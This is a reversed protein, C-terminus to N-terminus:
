LTFHFGDVIMGPIASLALSRQDYTCTDVIMEKFSTLDVLGSGFFHYLTEDFRMDKIPAIKQGDEVWFCAYRTMGTVRGGQVDSWNLYHLHDIYLGTGLTKLINGENLSGEGLTATSLGEGERAANSTVDYEKATRDSILWNKLKGGEILSLHSPACEGQNNFRPLLNHSFDQSLNIKPSLIKTGDGLDKLASHGKKYASYSLAGYSLVGVLAEVAHPSFYVRYAGPEIVKPQKKLLALDIDAEKLQHDFMDMDLISGALLKKVAKQEPTYLSYDLFFQDASFWHSTGVSSAYGRMIPGSCWIGAADYGELKQFIEQLPYDIGQATDSITSEHHKLPSYHPDTPLNGMIEKLMDIQQSANKLNDEHDLLLPMQFRAEKGDVQYSLVVDAQKVATSQRIKGQTFRIFTSDEGHLSLSMAEAQNLKEFLDDSLKQFAHRIDQTFSLDTTHLLKFSSIHEM